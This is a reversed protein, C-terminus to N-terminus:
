EYKLTDAPNTRIARITQYSIVTLSIILTFTASALFIWANLGTHYSYNQLFRSLLFWAVPVSIVSAVLLLKVFERTFLYFITFPPAGHAKRIGMERTKQEVFFTAMGYLGISAILVALVAFYNMITGMRVETRYTKEFDDDVFHYEFPYAPEIRKWAQELQKM